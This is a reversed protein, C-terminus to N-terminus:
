YNLTKITKFVQISGFVSFFFISISTAILVGGVGYIKILYISLPINVILGFVCTILQVKIKNIGNLFTGIIINWINIITFFATSILLNLSILLDEGVWVKILHKSAALM